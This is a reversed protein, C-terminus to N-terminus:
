APARRCLSLSLGHLHCPRPARARREAARRLNRGRPAAAKTCGAHDEIRPGGLQLVDAYLAEHQAAIHRIDFRELATARACQGLTAAHAPNRLLDVIAQALANADGLPVLAGAQGDLLTEGHVPIASAVIPRAAFMAEVLAGPHGEFLSPFVFVDAVYLLQPIDDRNGLLQVSGALDLEAILAELSPRLPGEGAILLRCNPAQRLIAPMARILEAQNKALALRGM